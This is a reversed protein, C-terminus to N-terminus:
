FSVSYKLNATLVKEWCIMQTKNDRFTKQAVQNGWVQCMRRSICFFLPPIYFQHIREGGESDQIL